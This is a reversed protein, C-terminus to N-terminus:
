VRNLNTFIIEIRQTVTDLKDKIRAIKNMAEPSKGPESTVVSFGNSDFLQNTIKLITDVREEITLDSPADAGMERDRMISKPEDINSM